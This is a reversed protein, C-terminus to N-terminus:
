PDTLLPATASGLRSQWEKVVRATGAEDRRGVRMVGATRRHGRAAAGVVLSLSGIRRVMRVATARAQVATSAPVPVANASSGVGAGAAGASLAGLGPVPGASAVGTGDTLAGAASGVSAGVGAGASPWTETTGSPAASM